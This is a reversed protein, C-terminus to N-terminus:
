SYYVLVRFSTTLRESRQVSLKLSTSPRLSQSPFATAFPSVLNITKVFTRTELLLMKHLLMANGDKSAHKPNNFNSSQWYYFKCSSILILLSREERLALLTGHLLFCIKMWSSSMKLKFSHLWSFLAFILLSFYKEAFVLLQRNM